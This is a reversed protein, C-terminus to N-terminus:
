GVLEGRARELICLEARRHESLAFRGTEREAARTARAKRWKHMYDAHLARYLDDSEEDTLPRGANVMQEIIQESKTKLIM